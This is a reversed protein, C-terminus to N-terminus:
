VSRKHLWPLSEGAWRSPGAKWNVNYKGDRVRQWITSVVLGAVFAVATRKAFDGAVRSDPDTYMPNDTDHFGLPIETVQLSSNALSNGSVDLAEVFTIPHYGMATFITEFGTKPIRGIEIDKEFGHSHFRWTSVETAGNWSVYLNTTSQKRSNTSVYGKLSPKTAPKGVFEMKYARYNTFRRSAFSAEYLIPGGRNVYEAMRGNEGWGCFVGGNPLFQINGSTKTLGGDSREHIHYLEATKDKGPEFNLGVVKINSSDSTPKWTATEDAANDLFSLIM